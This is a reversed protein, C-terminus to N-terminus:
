WVSPCSDPKTKALAAEESLGYAAAVAGYRRWLEPEYPDVELVRFLRQYASDLQGERRFAEALAQWSSVEEGFRDVGWRAVAGLRAVSDARELYALYLRHARLSDPWSRALVWASDVDRRAARLDGRALAIRARLDRLAVSKPLHMLGAQINELAASTDGYGLFLTAVAEYAREYHGGRDVFPRLVLVAENLNRTHGVLHSFRGYDLSDWASLPHYFNAESLKGAVALLIGAEKRAAPVVEEYLAALRTALKFAGELCGGEALAYAAYLSDVPTGAKLFVFAASRSYGYRLYALGLRRWLLPALEPQYQRVYEALGQAETLQGRRLAGLFRGVASTDAEGGLWQANPSRCSIGAQGRYGLLQLYLYNDCLGPLWAEGTPVSALVRQAWSPKGHRAYLLALNLYYLAEDPAAQIAAKWYFAASDLFGGQYFAYALQNYLAAEPPAHLLYRQLTQIAAVPRELALWTLSLQMAAVAMPQAGIAREYREAAREAEVANRAELRALNYNVKAEYPVVVVARRYWDQAEDVRGALLARDARVTGYLRLNVRATPWDGRAEWLAFLVVVGFYYVALGMRLSKTLDWYFGKRAQWLPWFNLVLYVLILVLGATLGEWFLAAARYLFMYEHANAHYGFAGGLLLGLGAWGWLLSVPQQFVSGLSPYYPQMLFFGKLLLLFVLSVAVDYAAEKPLLWLLAELVVVLLVSAGLLSVGVRWREQLYALLSGFVLPVHLAALLAAVVGLIAPYAVFPQLVAAKEGQWLASGGSVLGVLAALVLASRWLSLSWVGSQILYAPLLVVLSLGLSVLYFPDVGAWQQAAEAMYVWAVWSFYVLYSMFGQMRTAAALLLGWGAVVLFYSLWVAWPQPMVVGGVWVGFGWRLPAEVAYTRFGLTDVKVAAVEEQQFFLPSLYARYDHRRHWGWWAGALGIGLLVVVVWSGYRDGKPLFLIFGRWDWSPARM